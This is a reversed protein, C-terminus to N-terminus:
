GRRSTSGHGCGSWTRAVPPGELREVDEPADVRVFEFGPAWGPAGVVFTLEGAARVEVEGAPPRLRDVPQRERALLWATGVLPHGAFPLEASPTFIRLMGRDANEVFVTGAFGLEAAVRQRDENAVEHGDLFVGLSDGGGGEPRCFVRVVHLEPV